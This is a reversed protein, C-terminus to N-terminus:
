HSDKSQARRGSRWTLAMALAGGALAGLGIAAGGPTALSYSVPYTPSLSGGPRHYLTVTGGEVLRDDIYNMRVKTLKVGDATPREVVLDLREVSCKSRGCRGASVVRNADVVKYTGMQANQTTAELSDINVILISALTLLAACVAGLAGAAGLTGAAILAKPDAGRRDRRRSVPTPLDASATM